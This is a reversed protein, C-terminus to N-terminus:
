HPNYFYDLLNEIQIASFSFVVKLTRGFWFNGKLNACKDICKDLTKDNMSKM